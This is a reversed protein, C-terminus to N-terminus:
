NIVEVAEQHVQTVAARDQAVVQLDAVERLLAQRHDFVQDQHAVEAPHCGVAEPLVLLHGPHDAQLYM